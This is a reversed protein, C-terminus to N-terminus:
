ETLTYRFILGILEEFHEGMDVKECELWDSEWISGGVQVSRGFEVREELIEGHIHRAPMNSFDTEIVGYFHEQGEVIRFECKSYVGPTGDDEYDLSYFIDAPSAQKQHYARLYLKGDVAKSDDVKMMRTRYVEDPSVKVIEKNPRTTSLETQFIQWEDDPMDEGRDHTDTAYMPEPSQYSWLVTLKREHIKKLVEIAKDSLM